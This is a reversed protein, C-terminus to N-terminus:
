KKRRRLALGGLTSIGGLLALRGPEPVIALSVGDLGFDNGTPTLTLDRLILSATTNSGSNWSFTFQQWGNTAFTGIPNVPAGLLMGAIEPQISPPNIGNADTLWFSLNYDTNPTVAFTPSIYFQDQGAPINVTGPYSATGIFLFFGTGSVDNPISDFFAGGFVGPDDTTQIIFGNALSHDLWYPDNTTYTASGSDFNESFQARAQVTGMGMLTLVLAGIRLTRM